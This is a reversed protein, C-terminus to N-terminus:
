YSSRDLTRWKNLPCERQAQLAVNILPCGCDMAMCLQTVGVEKRNPCGECTTIRETALAKVDTPASAYGPNAHLKELPTM